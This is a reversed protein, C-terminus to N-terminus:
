CGPLLAPIDWTCWLLKVHIGLQGLNGATQDSSCCSGRAISLTFCQAPLPYPRPLYVGDSSSKNLEHFHWLACPYRYGEDGAGGSPRHCNFSRSACFNNLYIYFLFPRKPIEQIEKLHVYDKLNVNWDPAGILRKCSTNSTFSIEPMSSAPNQIHLSPTDFPFCCIWQKIPEKNCRGQSLM